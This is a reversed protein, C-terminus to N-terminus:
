VKDKEVYKLIDESLLLSPRDDDNNNNFIGGTTRQWVANDRTPNTSLDYEKSSNELIAFASRIYLDIEIALEKPFNRSFEQSFRVSMNKIHTEPVGTYPTSMAMEFALQSNRSVIASIEEKLKNKNLGM